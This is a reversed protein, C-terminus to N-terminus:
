GSVQEFGYYLALAAQVGLALPASLFALGITAAYIFTGVSFRLLSSREAAAGLPVAILRGGRVARVWILSFAIAALALNASYVAEAVSADPGGGGLYRSVLSTPFPLLSMWLL